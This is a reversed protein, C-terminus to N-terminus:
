VCWGRPIKWAENDELRLAAARVVGRSTVADSSKRSAARRDGRRGIIIFSKSCHGAPRVDRGFGTFLVRTRACSPFLLFFIRKHRTMLEGARAYANTGNKRPALILVRNIRPQTSAYFSDYYVPLTTSSSSSGSM